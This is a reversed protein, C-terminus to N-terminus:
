CSVSASGAHLCTAAMSQIRFQLAVIQKRVGLTMTWDIIATADSAQLTVTFIFITASSACYLSM